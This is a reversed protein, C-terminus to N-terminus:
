NKQGQGASEDLSHQTQCEKCISGSIEAETQAVIFRDPSVWLDDQDRIKKCFVCILFNGRITNSIANKLLWGAEENIKRASQIRAYVRHSYLGFGIFLLSTFSRMWLENLDSPFLRMAFSTNEVLLSDFYAEIVWFGIAFWIGILIFLPIKLRNPDTTNNAM